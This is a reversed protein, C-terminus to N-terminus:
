RSGRGQRIQEDILLLAKHLPVDLRDQYLYFDELRAKYVTPAYVFRLRGARRLAELAEPEPPKGAAGTSLGTELAGGVLFGTLLALKAEENLARWAHGDFAFVTRPTQAVAMPLLTDVVSVGPGGGFVLGVTLGLGGLSAALASGPSNRGSKSM